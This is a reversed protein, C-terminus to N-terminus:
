GLLSHPEKTAVLLVVEGRERKRLGVRGESGRGVGGHGREM